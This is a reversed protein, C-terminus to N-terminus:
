RSPKSPRSSGTSERFFDEKASSFVKSELKAYSLLGREFEVEFSLKDGADSTFDWTEKLQLQGSVNVLFSRELTASAAPLWVSYPGPAKERVSIFGGINEVGKEDHDKKKAPIM